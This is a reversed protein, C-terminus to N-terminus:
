LGALHPVLWDGAGALLSADDLPPLDMGAARCAEARARLRAAAPSWPLGEDRLGELAALALAEPPADPWTRDDLVLAWLREQRRATVRGERRSWACTDVWAIRDAYLARLEAE